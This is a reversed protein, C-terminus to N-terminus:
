RPKLTKRDIKSDAPVLKFGKTDLSAVLATLQNIQEHQKQTTRSLSNIEKRLQVLNDDQKKEKKAANATQRWYELGIIGSICFFYEM